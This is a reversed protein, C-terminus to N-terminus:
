VNNPGSKAFVGVIASIAAVGALAQTRLKILLDNFHMAIQEYKEWLEFVSWQEVTGPSEAEPSEAEAM